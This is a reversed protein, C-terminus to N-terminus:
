DLWKAFMSNFEQISVTEGKDVEAIDEEIDPTVQLTGNEINAYPLSVPMASDVVMAYAAAPDSVNAVTTENEPQLYPKIKSMNM